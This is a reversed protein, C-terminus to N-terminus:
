SGLFAEMAGFFPEPQELWIFHGANPIVLLRANPFSREWERSGELPVFDGQGHLIRVPGGYRAAASRWDWASLSATLASLHRSVNAMRENDSERPQPFARAYAGGDAFYGPMVAARWAKAAAAPDPPPSQMLDSITQPDLRSQLVRAAEGSYSPAMPGSLILREVREPYLSAYNAAVAGHYSWGVLCLWANWSAIACFWTL